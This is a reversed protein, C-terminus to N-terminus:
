VTLRNICVGFLSMRVSHINLSTTLGKGASMCQFNPTLPRLCLTLPDCNLSGTLVPGSSQRSLLVQTM